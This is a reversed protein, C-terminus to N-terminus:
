KAIAPLVQLQDERLEIFTPKRSKKGGIRVRYILMGNPGLPGRLEVIRAKPYASNLIEVQDGPKLHNNIM